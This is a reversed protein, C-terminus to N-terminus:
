TKGSFAFLAHVFMRQQHSYFCSSSLFILKPLDIIWPLGLSEGPFNWQYVVSSLVLNDTRQAELHSLWRDTGMCHPHYLHPIRLLDTELFVLGRGVSQTKWFHHQLFWPGTDTQVASYPMKSDSIHAITHVPPERGPSNVKAGRGGKCPTWPSAHAKGAPSRPDSFKLWAFPCSSFTGVWLRLCFWVKNVAWNGKTKRRRLLMTKCIILELLKVSAMSLSTQITAVIGSLKGMWPCFSSVWSSAPIYSSTFLAVSSM